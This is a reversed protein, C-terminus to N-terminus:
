IKFCGNIKLTTLWMWALWCNQRNAQVKIKFIHWSYECKNIFMKSIKQEINWAVHLLKFILSLFFVNKKKVKRIIVKFRANANTWAIAFPLIRAIHKCHLAPSSKTKPISSSWWITQNWNLLKAHRYQSPFFFFTFDVGLHSLPHGRNHWWERM